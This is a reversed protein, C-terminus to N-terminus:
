RKVGNVVYTVKEANLCSQTIAPLGSAKRTVARRAQAAAIITNVQDKISNLKAIDSATQPVSQQYTTTDNTVTQAYTPLDKVLNLGDAAMQLYSSSGPTQMPSEPGYLADIKAQYEPLLGASVANWYITDPNASLFSTPSSLTAISQQAVTEWAPTPGPICYDLKGLSPLVNSLLPLVKAVADSYDQQIQLVGRNVINGNTDYTDGLDHLLDFSGTSIPNDVAPTTVLNGNQDTTVGIGLGDTFPNTVPQIPSALGGPGNFSNLFDEFWGVLSENITRVLELQRTPSNVTSSIEDKIVSGPTVVTYAICRQSGNDNFLYSKQYAPSLHVSEPDFGAAAITADSDTASAYQTCKKQDQLGGNRAVEATTDTAIKASQDAINQSAMMTFGLPNNQDHQTYALWGDWGGQSFDTSFTQVSAGPELYSTLDQILRNNINAGNKAYNIQALAFEHGYPYNADIGSYALCKLTDQGEIYGSDGPKLYAPDNPDNPINDPIAWQTCVDVAKTEIGVLNTETMLASRQAANILSDMDEVYLPNGNQGTQAWKVITNTTKELQAKAMGIALGNLCNTTYNQTKQDTATNTAIANGAGSNVPFGTVVTVAGVLASVGVAILPQLACGVASGTLTIAQQSLAEAPIPLLVGVSSFLLITVLAVSTIKKALTKM